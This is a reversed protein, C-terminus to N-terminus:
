GALTNVTLELKRATICGWGTGNQSQYLCHSQKDIM